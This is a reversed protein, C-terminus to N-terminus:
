TRGARARILENFSPPKPEPKVGRRGQDASGRPKDDAALEPYETLFATITSEIAAADVEGDDDVPITSADALKALLTANKVRGAAAARLESRVLRENAAKLAETRGEVRAAEIAQEEAPKDKNALSRELERSKKEAAKRAAREADLAKKLGLNPDEEPTEDTAETEEDPTVDTETDTM